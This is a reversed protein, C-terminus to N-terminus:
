EIQKILAILRQMCQTLLLVEAEKSGRYVKRLLAMRQQFRQMVSAIHGTQRTELGIEAEAM